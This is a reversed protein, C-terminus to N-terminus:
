PFFSVQWDFLPTKYLLRLRVVPEAALGHRAALDAM